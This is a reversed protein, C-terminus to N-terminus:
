CGLKHAEHQLQNIRFQAQGWSYGSNPLTYLTMQRHLNACQQTKTLHTDTVCATLLLCNALTAIIIMFKKM